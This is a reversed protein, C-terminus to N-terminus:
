SAGWQFSGLLYSFDSVEYGYLDWRRQFFLPSSLRRPWPGKQPVDSFPLVEDGTFPATLQENMAQSVKRPVTSLVFMRWEKLVKLLISIKLSSM